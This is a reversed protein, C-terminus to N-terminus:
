KPYCEVISYAIANEKSHSISIHIKYNNFESCIENAIKKAENHLTVIPKGLKDRLIEIDKFSFGRIGTGLAKSVAEKAAFNGAIVEPNLKRKNFYRIEEETFLKKIFNENKDLKLKIRDIEIIDTGIGIIM